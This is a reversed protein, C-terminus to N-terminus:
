PYAHSLSCVENLLLYRGVQLTSRITLLLQSIVIDLCSILLLRMEDIFNLWLIEFGRSDPWAIDRRRLFIRVARVLFNHYALTYDFHCSM